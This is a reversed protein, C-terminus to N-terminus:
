LLSKKKNSVLGYLKIELWGKKKVCRLSSERVYEILVINHYTLIMGIFTDMTSVM